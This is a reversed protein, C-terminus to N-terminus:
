KYQAALAPGGPNPVLPKQQREITVWTAKGDPYLILCLDMSAVTSWLEISGDPNPGIDIENIELGGLLIEFATIVDKSIPEAGDGDWGAGGGTKYSHLEQLLDKIM